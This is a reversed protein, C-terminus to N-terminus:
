CFSSSFQEYLVEILKFHSFVFPCCGIGHFNREFDFWAIQTQRAGEVFNVSNEELWFYQMNALKIFCNRARGFIRHIIMKNITSIWCGSFISPIKMQEFHKKHLNKAYNQRGRCNKQKGSACDWMFWGNSIKTTEYSYM